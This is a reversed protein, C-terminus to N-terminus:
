KEGQSAYKKIATLIGFYTPEKDVVMNLQYLLDTLRLVGEPSTVINNDLVYNFLQSAGDIYDSLESKCKVYYQRVELLNKAELTKKVIEATFSEKEADSIAKQTM